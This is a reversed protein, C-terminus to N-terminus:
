LQIGFLEKLFSMFSSLYLIQLKGAFLTRSVDTLQNNSHIKLLTGKKYSKGFFFFFRKKCWRRVVTAASASEHSFMHLKRTQLLFM